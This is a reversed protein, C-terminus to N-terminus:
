KNQLSNASLTKIQSVMSNVKDITKEGDPYVLYYGDVGSVPLLMSTATDYCTKNYCQVLAASDNNIAEAILENVKGAELQQKEEYTMTVLPVHTTIIPEPTSAMSMRAVVLLFLVIFYVMYLGVKGMVQIYKKSVPTQKIYSSNTKSLKHSLKTSM